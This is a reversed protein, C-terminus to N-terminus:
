LGLSKSIIGKMIENTGAFITAVQVDRCARVLPCKEDFAFDGVIDMCRDAIRKGM